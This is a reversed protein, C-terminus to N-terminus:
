VYTGGYIDRPMYDFFGPEESIIRRFSNKLANVNEQIFLRYMPKNDWLRLREEIIRRGLNDTEIIQVYQNRYIERLWKMYGSRMFEFIIPYRKAQVDVAAPIYLLKWEKFLFNVRDNIMAYDNPNLVTLVIGLDEIIFQTTIHKLVNTTSFPIKLAKLFVEVDYSTEKISM